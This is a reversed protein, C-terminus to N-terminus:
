NLGKETFCIWLWVGSRMSHPKFLAATRYQPAFDRRGIEKLKEDVVRITAIFRERGLFRDCAGVPLRVGTRTKCWKM